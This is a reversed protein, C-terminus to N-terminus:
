RLKMKLKSLESILDFPAKQNASAQGGGRQGSSTLMSRIKDYQKTIDDIQPGLAADIQSQDGSLLPQYYSSILSRLTDAGGQTTQAGQALNYQGTTGELNGVSRIFQTLSDQGSTIGQTAIQGTPATGSGTWYSTLDAPM